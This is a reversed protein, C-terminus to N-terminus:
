FGRVERLKKRLKRGQYRYYYYIEKMDMDDTKLRKFVRHIDNESFELLQILVTIEELSLELSIKAASVAGTKGNAGPM